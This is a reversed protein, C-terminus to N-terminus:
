DWDQRKTKGTLCFDSIEDIYNLFDSNAEGLRNISDWDLDSKEKAPILIQSDAPSLVDLEIFGIGHLSSLMRLENKANADLEAAALYGFNAWSSNSVCQFFTSRVNSSNIKRKVEFSWLKAKKDGYQKACETVKHSWQSVLDELAVLDPYLWENGKPGRNNNSRKEDIRKVYLSHEVQLYEILIPYLDHELPLTDNIPVNTDELSEIEDSDTKETYYYKRPRGETTKINNNKRQLRPRQSGIEAVIQQILAKESNLPTVTAESNKQKEKCENPYNEYIWEAIQRATYKNNPNSQLFDSVTM